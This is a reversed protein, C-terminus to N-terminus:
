KSTQANKQLLNDVVGFVIKRDPWLCFAAAYTAVYVSGVAVFELGPHWDPLVFWMLAAGAAVGIVTSTVPARVSTTFDSMGFGVDKHALYLCLPVALSYSCSFGWAIGVPGWYIGSLIGALIIVTAIVQTRLHRSSRGRSIFIWGSVGNVSSAIGAPVLALFVPVADLWQSGLALEIINHPQLFAIGAIPMSLSSMLTLSKRYAQRFREPENQLRSLAPVIVNSMPTNAQQIPLLLLAYARQYLGLAVPGFLYGIVINDVNRRLYNLTSSLSLCGGFALMSRVGTGRRPPGPIWRVASWTLVVEAFGSAVLMGVLAWYGFDFWAMFIGVALGFATTGQERIGVSTFRMQRKLLALHQITLGGLFMTGSIVMTVPLLAPEGFFWAIVPAMAMVFVTLFSGIAVNIWFLTSVQDHTVESRQVTAMSLGGDKFLTVFGTLATAMTFIGFDNPSILRALAFTSILKLVFGIGQFLITAVGGRVTRNRLDQSVASTDFHVDNASPKRPEAKLQCEPRAEPQADATSM